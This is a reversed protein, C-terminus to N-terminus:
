QPAGDQLCRLSGSPVMEPRAMIKFGSKMPNTQQPFYVPFGHTKAM